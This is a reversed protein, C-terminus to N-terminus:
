YQQRESAVINLYIGTAQAQLKEPARLEAM